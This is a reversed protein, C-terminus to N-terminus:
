KTEVFILGGCGGGGGAGSGALPLERELEEAAADGVGRLTINERGVSFAFTNELVPITRGITGDAKEIALGTVGDPALGHIRFKRAKGCYGISMDYLARAYKLAVCGGGGGLERENKPVDIECVWSKTGAAMITAKPREVEGFWVPGHAPPGGHGNGPVGHFIRFSLRLLTPLKDIVVRKGLLSFGPLHGGDASAAATGALAACVLAALWVAIIRRRRV